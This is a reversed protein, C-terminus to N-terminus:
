HNPLFRLQYNVAASGPDIIELSIHIPQKAPMSKRGLLEGAIYDSPAFRRGAVIQGHIDTFQLELLPFPQQFSAQNTMMADVVLANAAKPHSRVMLNSSKILGVDHLKPLKCGTIGCLTKFLPRYAENRALKDYNHSIHQWPLALAALLIAARWLWRSLNKESPAKVIEVPEPEIASILPPAEPEEGIREGASFSQNSSLLQEDIVAHSSTQSDINYDHEPAENLLAVLDPDLEPESPAEPASDLIDPHLDVPLSEEVLEEEDDEHLLKEAWSDADDEIDDSIDDLDKFVATPSEEWTDMELFSDSLNSDVDIDDATFLDETVDSFLDQDSPEIISTQAATDDFILDDDETNDQQEDINQTDTNSSGATTLDPFLEDDHQIIPQQETDQFMLEDDLENSPEPETQEPEDEFLGETDIDDGIMFDDDDLPDDFSDNTSVPASAASSSSAAIQKEDIWHEPANFIHLCSGCRVAGNAIDLQADTVRFSTQCKPCQTVRSSM